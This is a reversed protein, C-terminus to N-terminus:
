DRLPLAGVLRGALLPYATEHVLELQDIRWTQQWAPWASCAQVLPQWPLAERYRFLTIHQIQPRNRDPFRSAAYGDMDDRLRELALTPSFELYIAKNGVRLQAQQLVFAPYPAAMALLAALTDAELAAWEKPGVVIQPTRTWVLQYVSLHLASVPVRHWAEAPALAEIQDQLVALAQAVAAAPRAVIDIAFTPQGVQSDPITFSM